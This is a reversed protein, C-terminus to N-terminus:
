REPAGTLVSVLRITVSLANGHQRQLRGQGRMVWPTIHEERKRELSDQQQCKVQQTKAGRM